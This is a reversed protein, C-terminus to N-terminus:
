GLISSVKRGSRGRTERPCRRTIRIWGGERNGRFSSTSGGRTRTRDYSSSGTRRRRRCGRRRTRGCGGRGKASVRWAVLRSSMSRRREMTTATTLSGRLIIRRSWRSRRRKQGGRSCRTRLGRAEDYLQSRRTRRSSNPNPHPSSPYPHLQQPLALPLLRPPSPPSAVQNLPPSPPVELLVPEEEDEQWELRPPPLIIPLSPLVLNPNRVPNKSSPLLPPPCKNHPLSPLSLLLHRNFPPSHARSNQSIDSADKQLKYKHFHFSLMSM